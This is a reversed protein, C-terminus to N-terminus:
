ITDGESYETINGSTYGGLVGGTKEQGEHQTATIKTPSDTFMTTVVRGTQQGSAAVRYTAVFYPPLQFSDSITGDGAVTVIVDRTWTQGVDDNVVIRVETDGQWNTGTLNVTGGPPYDAQDSTITPVADQLLPAASVHLLSGMGLTMLMTVLVITTLFFNKKMAPEESFIFREIIVVCKGPSCSSLFVQQM